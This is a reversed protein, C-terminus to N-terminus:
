VFNTIIEYKILKLVCSRVLTKKRISSFIFCSGGGGGLFFSFLVFCFSVFCFLVFFVTVVVDFLARPM